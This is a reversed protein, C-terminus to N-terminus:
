HPRTELRPHCQIGKSKRGFHKLPFYGMQLSFVDELVGNEVEMIIPPLTSAIPHKCLLCSYFAIIRTAGPRAAMYISRMCVCFHAPLEHISFSLCM